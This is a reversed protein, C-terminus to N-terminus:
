ESAEGQLEALLEKDRDLKFGVELATIGMLLSSRPDSRKNAWAERFLEHGLPEVKNALVSLTQEGFWEASLCPVISRDGTISYPWRLWSAGDLSWNLQVNTFPQPPVPLNNRWRVVNVITEPIEFLERWREQLYDQLAQPLFQVGVNDWHKLKGDEHLVDEWGVDKVWGAALRGDALSELMAQIKPGANRNITVHLVADRERYGQKIEESNASRLHAVDLESKLPIRVDTGPDM